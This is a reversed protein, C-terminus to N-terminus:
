AHGHHDGNAACAHWPQPHGRRGSWTRYAYDTMPLACRGTHGPPLIRYRITVRGGRRGPAARWRRRHM